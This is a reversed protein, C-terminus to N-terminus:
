IIENFSHVDEELFIFGCRRSCIWFKIVVHDKTLGEDDEVDYIDYIPLIVM